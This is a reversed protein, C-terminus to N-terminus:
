IPCYTVTITQFQTILTEESLLISNQINRKSDNGNTYSNIPSELGFMFIVTQVQM